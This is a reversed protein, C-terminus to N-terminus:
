GTNLTVMTPPLRTVELGTPISQLVPCFPVQAAGNGSTRSPWAIALGPSSAVDIKVSWCRSIRLSALIRDSLAGEPLALPIRPRPPGPPKRPGCPPGLRGPMRPPRPPGLPGRAKPFLRLRGCRLPKPSTRGGRSIPYCSPECVERFCGLAGRTWSAM